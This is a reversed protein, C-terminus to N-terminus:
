SSRNAKPLYKNRREAIKEALREKPIHTRAYRFIVLLWVVFVIEQILRFINMGLLPIQQFRFFFLIFGIMGNSLLVNSLRQKTGTHIPLLILIVGIVISLIIFTLYAWQLPWHAPPTMDFLTSFSLWKDLHLMYWSGFQSFINRM